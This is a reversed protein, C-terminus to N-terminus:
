SGHSVFRYDKKTTGRFAKLRVKTRNGTVTNEVVAHTDGVAVILVRRMAVKGPNHQGKTSVEWLQGCAVKPVEVKEPATLEGVLEQHMARGTDLRAQALANMNDKGIYDSARLSLEPRLESSEIIRILAM